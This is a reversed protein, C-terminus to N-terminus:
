RRHVEEIPKIAVIFRKGIRYERGSFAAVTLFFDDEQVIEGSIAVDHNNDQYIIKKAKSQM